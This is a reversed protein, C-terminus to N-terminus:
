YLNSLSVTCTVTVHDDFKISEISESFIWRDNHLATHVLNIHELMFLQKALPIGSGPCWKVSKIANYTYRSLKDAFLSCLQEIPDTANEVFSCLVQLMQFQLSVRWANTLFEFCIESSIFISVNTHFHFELFCFTIINPTACVIKQQGIQLFLWIECRQFSKASLNYMAYTWRWYM